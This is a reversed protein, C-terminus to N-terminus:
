EFLNRTLAATNLAHREMGFELFLEGLGACRRRGSGARDHHLLAAALTVHLPAHRVDM